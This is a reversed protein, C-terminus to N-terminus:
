LPQEDSATSESTAPDPAGAAAISDISIPLRARRELAERAQFTSLTTALLSSLPILQRGARIATLFARVEEEHGKGAVRMRRRRRGSYLELRVYNDLVASRGAGHVELREKAVAAAGESVYGVTGISGDAFEFTLLSNDAPVVAGDESGLSCGSVAVPDSGTLFQMLDVFHCVEGVIRGGGEQPDQTWHERSVHGANVRYIMVLPGAADGFHEKLRTASPSFRRNYGVLVSPLNGHAELDELRSAIAALDARTLCLPKEVFVHKGAALALLVDPGHQDHRTAIFVADLDRAIVDEPSGVAEVFGFRDGVDAAGVGSRTCIAALSVSKANRLPPLLFTQAFSGAGIFGIRLRDGTARPSGALRVTGATPSLEPAYEILIGGYPESRDAIMEYARPAEDLAFRHTVCELPTFTGAAMLDLVAELNRGETWRVYGAPYDHGNEEYSPDYRGPGYSCSVVFSLEKEYYDPRPLDMGVAGVVVIRGRKRAIKGALEVPENGSTAACILVIDAGRGRSFRSVAPEAPDVGLQIAEEVVGAQRARAVAAASVDAGIVRCGNARLLQCALQGILGLGLVVANEGVTPQAMRLGQLAIAALTSMAAADLPVGEPIRAVLNVPVVIEDAHVAYGGGACAVLDGIAVENVGEGVEVVRGAASYGLPSAGDLKSRVKRITQKLGVQGVMELAQRAQQPRELAKGLLSKRGTVIKGGETGPSICSYATRVRVFRPRLLPRPAEMVEVKGNALRQILIKVTDGEM